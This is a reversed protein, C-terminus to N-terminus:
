SSMIVKHKLWYYRTVRSDINSFVDSYSNTPLPLTALVSATEVEISLGTGNSLAVTAGNVSTSLTASSASPTTKIYYITGASLGNSNNKVLISSGVPLEHTTNFTLVNSTISVGTLNFKSSPSSYIETFGNKTNSISNIWSLRIGSYEENATDLSTAKINYPAEITSVSSIGTLGSGQQRSLRSMSYFANNYEEAVIDVTTDELYTVQTIRFKKDSWGYRPYEISVVTGALLLLGRPEMNFSITLGYRSKHLYKDALMRTNYYNTIGPIALNGKKPVNRDIELYESNFFNINRAEFKSAPDPFSASLSNFSGRTGEDTLRVRGIINSPSIVRPGTIDAEIVEEEIDLYYKGGSYRLIGGFHELISNINDFLPVATDIAINTQHKTVSRQSFDDWGLYRWYNIEDCDYLSYGPVKQGNKIAQAPNGASVTTITKSGSYLVPGTSLYLLGNVTGSTHSPESSKVGSTTVKYLNNGNYVLEDINYSKWSNWQNTIKGIIDTFEIYNGEIALVKGQWIINGTQPWRFVDGEVPTGTTSATKITVDSRADCKRATELWSTLNLDKYPNLGKGYTVSTVYDLLQISPNISFRKDCYPPKIVVKDGVSPCKDIDWVDEITVTKTSGSYNSIIKEQIVLKDLASDYKHLEVIYGKYYDDVASALASIIVTNRSVISTNNVLQTADAQATPTVPILTKVATATKSVIPLFVNSNFINTDYYPNNYDYVVSMLPNNNTLDTGGNITSSAYTLSITGGTTSTGTVPISVVSAVTGVFEVYDFTVMTWKQNSANKMYFKKITPISDVYGLNPTSSFRFRTNLSGDPGNFSWKDIIQVNSNLLVDAASYLSVISGLPFNDSSESTEKSYHSYSFDYNYCDLIKGKIILEVDSITTDGEAIKYRTVTYATDLLRHNPGWYEATDTGSWYSNQVRFGNNKAIDVLQSAAKQYSTGSFFDIVINQPESILISEGNLVGAGLGDQAVPTVPQVYNYYNTLQSINYTIDTLLYEQGDYFSNVTSGYSTAGGLVDGRDARGTCVLQVTNDPTQASRADFDQKNNCILSNGEVYANLIGGIEGECLAHVVFVESTDDNKTDAFIPIGKVARVGYIVPIAKSQLQFDLETNRDEPVMYKKVKVKAGIGFFGKKAKIDTKEVQVSYTSLLNLSTEAHSFGKDYAYSVKLTAKPQPTGTSDLARHSEDSTLRGVVQAFDGWHSTIGWTVQINKDIDEFSTNSIIGKFLLDPAGIIDRNTNFYVRYIFVERNIFSAYEPATKDLLISKIEESALNITLTGIGTTASDDIKKIRIKNAARFSHINFSGSSVGALEIKDGERFGELIPDLTDPYSIDWTSSDVATITAVFTANAGIGNGDLVLNYTSASAQISESVSSVKLVKNALYTQVGNAVGQSDTSGDDFAINISGDTLYTYRQKATSVRGDKTPRSPREFKILHAYHFPENNMLATRLDAHVPRETLM